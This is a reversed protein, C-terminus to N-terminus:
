ISPARSSARNNCTSRATSNRNELNTTCETLDQYYNGDVERILLSAVKIILKAHKAYNEISKM